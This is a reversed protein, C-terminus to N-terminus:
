ETHLAVDSPPVSPRVSPIFTWIHHSSLAEARKPGIGSFSPCFFMKSRVYHVAVASNMILIPVSSFFMVERYLLSFVFPPVFFVWFM